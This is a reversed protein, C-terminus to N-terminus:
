EVDRRYLNLRAEACVRRVSLRAATEESRNRSKRRERSVADSADEDLDKLYADYYRPPKSPHGRAIVEDSPYVEDHYREIWGRGIGPRRSMRGFEPLVQIIEGTLPSVRAYHGEALDGNVKQVCYRAVYAASEFTLAAVTARGCGWVGSLEASEYQPAGSKADECRVKDAFERGFLLAHYHPRQRTEGYEGCYLYRFRGRKRLRKLFLTVDRPELSGDGPLHEDDYTLTVFCNDAHLSAEHVCRVAWQRSRELRCGM